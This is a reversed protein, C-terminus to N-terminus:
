HMFLRRFKSPLLFLWPLPPPKEHLLSAQYAVPHVSDVSESHLGFLSMEILGHIRPLQLARESGELCLHVFVSTNAQQPSNWVAHQLCYKNEWWKQFVVTLTDSLAPQQHLSGQKCIAVKKTHGWMVQERCLTLEAREELNPDWGIIESM